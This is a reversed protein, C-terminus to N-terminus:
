VAASPGGRSSLLRAKKTPAKPPATRLTGRHAPGEIDRNSFLGVSWGEDPRLIALELEAPVWTGDAYIPRHYFFTGPHDALYQEMARYKRGQQSWGRNLDRRQPFLNMDLPGGASHAVFHGRDALAGSADVGQMSPNPDPFGRIRSAERRGHPAASLGFVLVVREAAM